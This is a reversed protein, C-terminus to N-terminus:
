EIKWVVGQEKLDKAIQKNVEWVQAGKWDGTKYFGSDDIVSLVPFRSNKALDYDEEGYAPALHVIGSGDELTVYDAHWIKNANNGQNEFLPEYSKGVLESGKFQREITYLIVNHKEDRLGKDVLDKAM